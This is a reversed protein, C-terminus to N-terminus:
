GGLLSKRAVSADETIGQGGTLNTRALGRRGMARKNVERTKAAVAPDAPSPLPPPPPPMQAVPGKSLFMKMFKSM